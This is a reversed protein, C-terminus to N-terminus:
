TFVNQQLVLSFYLWFSNTKMMLFFTVECPFEARPTGDCGRQKVHRTLHFKRSFRSGCTVCEYPKDVVWTCFFWHFTFFKIFYLRNLNGNHTVLHEVLARESPLVLQCQPCNRKRSNGSESTIPKTKKLETVPDAPVVPAKEIPTETINQSRYLFYYCYIM